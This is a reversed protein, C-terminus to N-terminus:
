GETVDYLAMCEVALVRGVTGKTQVECVYSKKETCASTGFVTMNQANQSGNKIQVYVCDGAAPHGPKWAVQSQAFNNEKSCWYYKDPCDVDM